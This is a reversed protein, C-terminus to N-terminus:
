HVHPFPTDVPPTVACPWHVVLPPMPATIRPQDLLTLPPPITFKVRKAPPYDGRDQCLMGADLFSQVLEKIRAWRAHGTEKWDDTCHSNSVRRMYAAHREPSVNPYQGKPSTNSTIIIYPSNIPVWGGKLQGPPGDEDTLTLFESLQFCTQFEELHIVDEQDYGDWWKCGTAKKFYSLGKSLIAAKTNKTKGHGTSGWLYLVKPAVTRKSYRQTQLLQVDKAYSPYRHIIEQPDVKQVHLQEIAACTEDRTQRRKDNAILTPEGLEIPTNEKSIYGKNEQPTGKAIDIWARPLLKSLGARRLPRTLQCYGQIHPTGNKGTEHAYLM